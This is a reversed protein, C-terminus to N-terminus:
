KGKKSLFFPQLLKNKGTAFAEIQRPTAHPCAMTYAAIAKEQIYKGWNSPRYDYGTGLPTPDKVLELLLFVGNEVTTWFQSSSKINIKKIQEKEVKEGRMKKLYTEIAFSLVSAWQSAYNVGEEYIKRGFESFMNSPIHFSSEIADLIKAQKTNLSGTWLDINKQGTVNSLVIPGGLQNQNNKNIVLISHLERWAAKGQSMTLLTPEEKHIFVTTTTERFAPYPPYTLGNALIIKSNDLLYVSRSLPVLRGLYTKTANQISPEDALSIPMLEWVPKGWGKDGHLHQASEKSILNLHITQILSQGRILSHVISGTCPAHSSSGEGPTELGNWVAVGIRGGVSFNQHTLLIIALRSKSLQRAEGAAANDFLTPNNGTALSVDLKTAPSNAENETKEHPSLNSFQLFRKGNGFLEFSEKWKELYRLAAEPILDFCEEWDEQTDPGDLAVQAICILLRMLSIREHPTANLDRIEEGLSFVDTLSILKSTGDQLIVPIWPDTVLNM